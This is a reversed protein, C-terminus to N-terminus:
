GASARTWAQTRCLPAVLCGTVALRDGPTLRVTVEYTHGSDPDYVWGKWAGPEAIAVEMIKLDRIPRDRLTADANRADKLDPRATLHSSSVVFGCIRPGCPAVRVRSHDTPSDWLGVPSSAAAALTAAAFLAIPM